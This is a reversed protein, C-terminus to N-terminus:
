AGHLIDAISIERPPHKQFHALIDRELDEPTRITETTAWKRGPHLVDWPSRKNARTEAADGHKGFGFCIKTERNWVPKFQRILYQEAALEWGSRVMLYRYRFHSIKLNGGDPNAEVRSITRKHEGLRKSLSIGQERSNRADYKEPIASGVYIPFNKNCIASYCELPGTYFLAYVGSGLEDPVQELPHSAQAFVATAIVHAITHFAAPDFVFAPERPGIADAIKSLHGIAQQIKKPASKRRSNGAAVQPEELLEPRGAAEIIMDLVANTAIYPNAADVPLALVASVILSDLAKLKSVLKDYNGKGAISIAKELEQRAKLLLLGLEDEHGNEVHEGIPM